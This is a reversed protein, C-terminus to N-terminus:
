SFATVPGRGCMMWKWIYKKLWHSVFSPRHIFHLRNFKSKHRSKQRSGQPSLPLSDVQLAPSAPKIGPNTLDGPSPFPLGSQYEQRPFDWPYLLRTPWLRHPQLLAPCSKTVLSSSHLQWLFSCRSFKCWGLLKEQIQQWDTRGGLSVRRVKWHWNIQRNKCWIAPIKSHIGQTHRSKNLIVDALNMWATMRM